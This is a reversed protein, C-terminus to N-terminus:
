PAPLRKLDSGAPIPSELPAPIAAGTSPLIQPPRPPDGDRPLPSAAPRNNELGIQGNAFAAAALPPGGRQAHAADALKRQALLLKRNQQYTADAFLAIARDLWASAEALDGRALAAMALNHLAAHNRPSADLAAQWAAAAEPWKGERALANGRHVDALGAGWYQRALEVEILEQHPTIRTAVEDACDALLGQLVADRDSVDRSKFTRTVQRADRVEGSAVDILKVALTVTPPSTLTSGMEYAVVQGTVLGDVEAQRAAQVVRGEDIQPGTFAAPEVRSLEAPDVLAFHQQEALRATIAARAQRGTEGMGSIDVVTLRHIGAIDVEAPRLVMVRAQPACGAAIALLLTLLTRMRRDGSIGRLPRSIVSESGLLLPLQSANTRSPSHL